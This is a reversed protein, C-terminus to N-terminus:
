RRRRARQRALEYNVRGIPTRCARWAAVRALAVLLGLLAAVVLEPTDPV